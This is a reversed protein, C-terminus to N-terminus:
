IYELCVAYALFPNNEFTKLERTHQCLFAIWIDFM